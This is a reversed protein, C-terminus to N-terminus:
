QESSASAPKLRGSRRKERLRSSEGRSPLVHSQHLVRDLIATTVVPNGFVRDWEGVRRTSTLLLSGRAYRRAVWQFFLHAANAEVPLYGFEDVMLLNPKAFDSLREELRGELPSQALLAVLATAPTFVVSYGRQIAERGVAVAVHSNGVGPPGLLLLADGHAVGRCLALERVQTPDLSPQAEFGVGERTRVVPFQAMSLTMQRRREEKRALDAQCLWPLAERLTLERRAIEDLLPDLQERLATLTLRTVMPILEDTSPSM